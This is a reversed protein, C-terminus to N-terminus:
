TEFVSLLCFRFNYNWDYSISSNTANEYSVSGKRKKFFVLSVLLYSREQM